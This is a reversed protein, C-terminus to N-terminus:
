KMKGGKHRRTEVANVTLLVMEPQRKSKKTPWVLGPVNPAASVVLQKPCKPDEIRNNHKINSEGDAACDDESDNPNDLDGNWSLWDDTDSISEPASDKNSEV